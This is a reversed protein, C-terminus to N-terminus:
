LGRVWSGQNLRRHALASTAELWAYLTCELSRVCQASLSYTFATTCAFSVSRRANGERRQKALM